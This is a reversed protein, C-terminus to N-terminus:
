EMESPPVAPRQDDETLNPDADPDQRHGPPGDPELEPWDSQVDGGGMRYRQQM